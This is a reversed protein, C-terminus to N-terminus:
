YMNSVHVPHHHHDGHCLALCYCYGFRDWGTWDGLESPHVVDSGMHEAFMEGVHIHTNHLM